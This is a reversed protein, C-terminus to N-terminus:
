AIFFSKLDGRYEDWSNIHGRQGDSRGHGRQDYGIVVYGLDPLVDVLNQYRDIHEGAGHVIILKAKPSEDSSWSKYYLETGGVGNVKGSQHKM